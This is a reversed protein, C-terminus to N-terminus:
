SKGARKDLADINLIGNSDVEFTVEVLAQSKKFGGFGGLEFEAIKEL